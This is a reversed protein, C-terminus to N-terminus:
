LCDNVGKRMVLNNGEYRQFCLVMDCIINRPTGKSNRQAVDRLDDITEPIIEIIEVDYDYSMAILEYPQYEWNNINTNDVVVHRFENQVCKIFKQLCSSHAQALKSADFRYEDIGFENKVVFFHDASCVAAHPSNKNIYTTKGAGSPGRMITCTKNDM